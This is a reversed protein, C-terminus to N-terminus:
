PLNQPSTSGAAAARLAGPTAGLTLRIEGLAKQIQEPTGEAGFTSLTTALAAAKRIPNAWPTGRTNESFARLIRELDRAATRTEAPPLGPITLRNFAAELDPLLRTALKAVLVDRTDPTLLKYRFTIASADGALATLELIGVSGERTRFRFTAPVNRATMIGPTVPSALMLQTILATPDIRDFADDEAPIVAMDIGLLARTTVSSEYMLDIGNTEMWAFKDFPSGAIPPPTQSKGSELDGVFDVRQGDDNITMTLTPGFPGAAIAPNAAIAFTAPTLNLTPGRAANAPAVQTAPLARSEAASQSFAIGTVTAIALTLIAASGAVKLKFAHLM